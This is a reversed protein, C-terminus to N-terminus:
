VVDKILKRWKRRDVAGEKCLQRTQCDKEMIESWTKKPRGRLRVSEVEYDM